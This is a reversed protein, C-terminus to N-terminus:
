SAKRELAEVRSEVSTLRQDYARVTVGLPGTFVHDIRSNLRELEEVVREVGQELATLRLDLSVVVDVIKGISAQMAVMMTGQRIQERVFVDLRSNTQDLKASLEERTQDLRVNTSRIEDRIERLITVTLNENESM